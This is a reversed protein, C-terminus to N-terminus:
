WKQVKGNVYTEKGKLNGIVGGLMRYSTVVKVGLKQFLSEAQIVDKEDVIVYSKKHEPFYGFIPGKQLLPEFWALLNDLKSCASVDDAYWIQIWKNLDKVHLLWILPLIGVAYMFMSLPDGQTVGERSYM